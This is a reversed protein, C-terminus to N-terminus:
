STEKIPRSSVYIYLGNLSREAGVVAMIRM